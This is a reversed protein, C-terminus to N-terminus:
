NTPEFRIFSGQHSNGTGPIIGHDPDIGPLQEAYPEFYPISSPPAIYDIDSDPGRTGSAASGVVEIPRGAQNVISQIEEIEEPTLDGTTTKEPCSGTKDTGSSSTGDQSRLPVASNQTSPYHFVHKPPAPITIPPLYIPPFGPMPIAQTGSPDIFRLPNQNAYGVINAGGGPRDLPDAEVYRGWQPEYDRAGNHYWGTLSGAFQGPLRLNQRISGTVTASGFPQYVASWVTGQSASTAKVPTGLRDDHLYSFTGGAPAYVAVPRGDGRDDPLYVYDAQPAGNVDEELLLGGRDYWLQTVVAPPGPVTRSFLRGAFDYAWSEVGVGPVTAGAMRGAADQGFVSASGANGALVPTRLELVGPTNWRLDQAPLAASGPTVSTLQGGDYAYADAPNAGLAQTLRNGNGDYTWSLAGYAGTATLLRDAADYTLGEGDSGVVGDAVDLVNDAADLTYGRKSVLGASGTDAVGTARYSADHSLAEVVGNGYVLGSLPGFPLYAAGSVVKTGGASIATVRGLADRAYGLSLGSPYVLGSVRGAADYSYSTTTTRAAGAAGATRAQALLNGREDYRRALVGAADTVGTLRGVGFSSGPGVQDYVYSVDQTKDWAYTAAVPRDDADYAFAVPYENNDQRASVNGDADFSQYLSGGESSSRQLLDNWGDYSLSTSAGGPVGQYTLNDSTDFGYSVVDGAADTRTVPRGLPDYATVTAHGLGDAAVLLNGNADWTFRSARGSGAPTVALARGLSDYTASASATVTGSAGSVARLLVDGANDLTYSTRNGGLDTVGTLRHATDYAYALASGDPLTLKVLNGAADLTRTTTRAGAATAVSQSLPRQRSDYALTTVVGNPDTVVQPLGGGSHATVTTAHGLADTVSVLAGSADYALATKAAVDTRPRQVSALLANAWTYTWTRTTQGKAYDPAEDTDTRTLVEGNADYTFVSTLNPATVTLPLNFAPHYAITTTQSVDPSSGSAKVVTTPRGRSDHMWSTQTGGFDTRTQLYGNVDYAFTESAAAVTASAARDVEVLQQGGQFSAFRYTEVEGLPGTVSRSGDANYLVATLGASGTGAHNSVARGQADYTWSQYLNGDEDTVSSLLRNAYAYKVASAPTTAYTVGTLFSSNFSLKLQGSLPMTTGVGGTGGYSYGITTGDPTKVSTLVGSAYGFTLTRGYSDKVSSVVGGSRAVTQTYGNRARISMLDARGYASGGAVYPTTVTYTEVTDQHDTLTWTSGSVTLRLDVDTDGSWVGGAQLFQLMQGDPREVVLTTASTIQLYRDYTSRWGVGLTGAFSSPLALSNYYRTFSLPNQGATSYDTAQEFVNGNSLTIPDGAQAQPPAESVDCHCGGADKALCPVSVPTTIGNYTTTFSDNGGCNTPLTLPAAGACGGAATDATVFNSPCSVALGSHQFFGFGYGSHGGWYTFGVSLSAGNGVISLGQVTCNSLVPDTSGACVGAAVRQACDGASSDYGEPYPGSGPCLWYSGGATLLPGNDPVGVTSTYSVQMGAMAQGACPYGAPIVLSSAGSSVKGLAPAVATTVPGPAVSACSALDYSYYFSSPQAMGFTAPVTNGSSVGASIVASATAAHAGCLPFLLMLAAVFARRVLNFM